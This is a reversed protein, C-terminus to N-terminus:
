RLCILLLFVELEFIMDVLQLEIKISKLNIYKWYELVFIIIAIEAIVDFDFTKNEEHMVFFKPLM